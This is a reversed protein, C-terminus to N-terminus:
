APDGVRETAYIVAITLAAARAYFLSPEGYWLTALDPIPAAGSFLRRIDDGAASAVKDVASVLSISPGYLVDVSWSPKVTDYPTGREVSVAISSGPLTVAASTQGPFSLAISDTDYPEIRRVALITSNDVIDVAWGDMLRSASLLGASPPFVHLKWYLPGVIQTSRAFPQANFSWEDALNYTLRSDLSILHGTLGAAEVCALLQHCRLNIMTRDPSVGFLRDRLRRVYGPLSVPRFLPDIYEEGYATESDRLPLLNALLTRGHNVM